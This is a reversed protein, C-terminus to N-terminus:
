VVEWWAKMPQWPVEKQTTHQLMGKGDHTWVIVSKAFRPLWTLVQEFQDQDLDPFHRVRLVRQMRDKVRERDLGRQAISAELYRHQRPSICKM